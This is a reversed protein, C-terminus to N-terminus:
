TGGTNEDHGPIFVLDKGWNNDKILKEYGKVLNIDPVIHVINYGMELLIPEFISSTFTKGAGMNKVIALNLNKEAAAHEAMALAIAISEKMSRQIDQPLRGSSIEEGNRSIYLRTILEKTIKAAQGDVNGFM